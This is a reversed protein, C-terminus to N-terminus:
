GVADPTAAPTRTPPRSAARHLRVCYVVDLAVISASVLNSLTLPDARSDYAFMGLVVATGILKLVAISMSQGATSGRRRLMAVYLGSMMLNQAAASTILRVDHVHAFHIIGVAVPLAALVALRVRWRPHEPFDRPVYWLTQAVIVVDLVLWTANVYLMPPRWPSVFTEYGEWAINAAGALVPMAPLRDRAAARIMLLYAATWSAGCVVEIVFFVDARTM